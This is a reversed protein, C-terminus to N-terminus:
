RSLIKCAKLVVLGSVANDPEYEARADAKNLERTNCLEEDYSSRM